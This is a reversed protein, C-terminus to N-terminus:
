VHYIDFRFYVNYQSPRRDNARALRHIFGLADHDFFEPHQLLVASCLESDIEKFREAVSCYRPGNILRHPGYQDRGREPLDRGANGYNKDTNRIKQTCSQHAVVGENAYM